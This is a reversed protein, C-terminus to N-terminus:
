PALLLEVAAELEPDQGAAFAQATPMVPVDPVVGVGHFLSGDPFLVEMGTFTPAMAGPVLVGTINGNTGASTRGVVTARDAGTLQMAFNEAASVTVPGVLLAIPGEYADPAGQQKIQSESWDMVEPGRWRPVRFVPSSFPGPILAALIAYHNTGPYGRMDVVMGAAAHADKIRALLAATDWEVEGAMNVYYLQPAGLDDLWGSPRMSSVIGMAQAEAVTGPPVVETRETGDAARLGLTRPETARIWQRSILDLRYGETAASVLDQQAAYWEAAPTGDISIVTDGPKLQPTASRRIVPEGDLHDVVALLLGAGGAGAPDFVFGHGDSVANLLRRLLNRMTARDTSAVDAEALLSLLREDMTDGVVPFYPFFRRLAGHLAIPAARLEGRGEAVPPADNFPTLKGLPPRTAAGAVPPPGGAWQDPAALLADLDAPSALPFDAPIVDPWREAGTLDSDRWAVGREGVPAWRAEAVATYLAEGAVFAGGALRLMAAVVIADRPMEKGTILLLPLTGGGAPAIPDVTDKVLASSYVSQSAFYQDTMGTHQRVVRKPGLLTKAVARAVAARVAAGLDASPPLERLDVAFATAEGPIVVEGVGPRVLAVSGVLTVEVPGLAGAVGAERVCVGPLAAAYAALADDPVVPGDGSLADALAVDPAVYSAHAGFFRVGAHAASLAVPFPEAGPLGPVVRDCWDDTPDDPLWPPASPGSDADGATGDGDGDTGSGDEADGSSGGGDEADGSSGGGDASDGQGGGTDVAADGASGGVDAEADGSSWGADGAGGLSDVSGVDGSPGTGDGTGTADVVADQSAIDIADAGGGVEGAGDACGVVAVVLGFTWWRAM